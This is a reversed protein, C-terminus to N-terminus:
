TWRLYISAREGQSRVLDTLAKEQCQEARCQRLLSGIFLLFISESRPARIASSFLPLGFPVFFHFIVRSLHQRTSNGALEAGLSESTWQHHWDRQPGAVQHVVQHPWPPQTASLPLCQESHQQDLCFKAGFDQQNARLKNAQKSLYNAAILQRAVFCFRVSSSPSPTERACVCVFVHQQRTFFVCLGVARKTPPQM